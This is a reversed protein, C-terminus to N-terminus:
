LASTLWYFAKNSQRTTYPIERYKSCYFRDGYFCRVIMLEPFFLLVYYCYIILWGVLLGIVDFVFGFSVILILCYGCLM